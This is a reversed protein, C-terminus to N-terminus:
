FEQRVQADINKKKPRSKNEPKPPYFYVSPYAHVNNLSCVSPLLDCNVKGFKM